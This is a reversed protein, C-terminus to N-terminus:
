HNYLIYELICESGPLVMTVHIAGGTQYSPHKVVTSVDTMKPGDWGM